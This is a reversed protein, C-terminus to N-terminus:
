VALTNEKVNLLMAEMRACLDKHVEGSEGNALADELEKMLNDFTHRIDHKQSNIKCFFATLFAVCLVWLIVEADSWVGCHM